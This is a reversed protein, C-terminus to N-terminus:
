VFIFPKRSLQSLDINLKFLFLPFLHIYINKLLMFPEKRRRRRLPFSEKEEGVAYRSHGTFSDYINRLYKIFSDYIVTFPYFFNESCERGM